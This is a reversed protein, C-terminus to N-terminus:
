LIGQGDHANMEIVAQNELINANHQAHNIYLGKNVAPIHASCSYVTKSHASMFKTGFLKRM